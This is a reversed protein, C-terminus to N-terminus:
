FEKKKSFNKALTHILKDFDLPKAIYENMGAKKAAIVDENFVNATRSPKQM